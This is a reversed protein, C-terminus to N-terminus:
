VSCYLNGCFPYNLDRAAHELLEEKQGEEPVQWLARIRAIHIKM